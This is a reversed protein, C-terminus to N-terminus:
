TPRKASLVEKCLDHKRKMIERNVNDLLDLNDRIEKLLLNTTLLLNNIEIERETSNKGPLDLKRLGEFEDKLKSM